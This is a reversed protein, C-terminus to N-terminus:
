LINRFFSCNTRHIGEYGGCYLCKKPRMSNLFDQVEKVTKNEKTVILPLKNKKRRLYEIYAKTVESPSQYNKAFNGFEIMDKRSYRGM